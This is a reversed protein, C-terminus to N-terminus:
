AKNTPLSDRTWAAMGGQLHAVDTFGAKKLVAVAKGSDIGRYCYLTIAQDKAGLKDLQADLTNMPISKAGAIHSAAYDAKQRLDILTAGANVRQTLTTPTLTSGRTGLGRIELMLLFALVAAGAIFFIINQQFFESFTM